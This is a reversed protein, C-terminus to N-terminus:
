FMLAMAGMSAATGAAGYAASNAANTSAVQSGYLGQNYNGAAATAGLLDAGATTAQQPVSNFTPNTVQSGTRVANLMNVPQNQLATQIGLAQTQAQQGVGIGALAAQQYQDNVGQQQVRMANNYAESGQAIGQNALQTQLAKNSQDIEPQLRSMIAQQGTQGPNVQSAPLSAMTPTNNLANGVYNVGQNALNGLGISAQNQQDLLQQQAPALTTTASWGGQGTSGAQSPDQSYTLNGYPTVQNVRNAAAAAKAADLNGAATANAAGTYDPAPPPSPQSKQLKRQEHTFYKQGIIM